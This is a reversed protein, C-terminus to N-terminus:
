NRGVLVGVGVLFVGLAVGVLFDEWVFSEPLHRSVWLVADAMM